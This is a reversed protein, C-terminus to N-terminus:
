ELVEISKIENVKLCWGGKDETDIDISSFGDEEDAPQTYGDVKGVYEIDDCDIIRIKVDEDAIKEMLDDLEIMKDTYGHEKMIEKYSKVM